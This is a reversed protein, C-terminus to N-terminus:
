VGSRFTKTAGKNEISCNGSYKLELISPVKLRGVESVVKPWIKILMWCTDEIKKECWNSHFLLYMLNYERLTEIEAKNKLIKGDGGVFIWSPDEQYLTKIIETDQSTITFRQDDDHHRVDNGKRGEYISLM